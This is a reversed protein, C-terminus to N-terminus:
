LIEGDISITSETNTSKAKIGELGVNDIAYKLHEKASSHNKKFEEPWSETVEIIRRTVVKEIVEFQM